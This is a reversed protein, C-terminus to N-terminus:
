RLTSDAIADKYKELHLKVVGRTNYAEIYDPKLRIAEDCDALADQYREFLQKILARNNYAEAYDPKLRIAEDCDALANHYNELILEAMGKGNYVEASDPKLNLAKDLATLAEKGMRKNIYLFGASAWAQFALAKDHGEAINAISRWKEIAEEIKESRQLVFADSIAKEEFTAKPNREIAKIYEEVESANEPKSVEESTLEPHSKSRTKNGFIFVLLMLFLSLSMDLRITPDFHIGFIRIGTSPDEEIIDNSSQTEKSISEHLTQSLPMMLEGLMVSWVLVIVIFGRKMFM